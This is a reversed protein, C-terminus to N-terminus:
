KAAKKLLNRVWRLPMSLIWLGFVFALAMCARFFVVLALALGVWSTAPGSPLARPATTRHSLGSGHEREEERDPATRRLWELRAKVRQSDNDDKLDAYLQRDFADIM